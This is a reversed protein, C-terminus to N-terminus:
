IFVVEVSVTLGENPWLLILSNTTISQSTNNHQQSNGSSKPVAVGMKLDKRM